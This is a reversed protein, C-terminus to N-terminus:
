AVYRAYDRPLNEKPDWASHRFSKLGRYRTVSCLCGAQFSINPFLFLSFVYKQFRIKALTDTPTDVEDPFVKDEREARLLVLRAVSM